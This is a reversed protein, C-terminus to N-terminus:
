LHTLSLTSVGYDETDGGTGVQWNIIQYDTIKASGRASYLHALGVGMGSTIVNHDTWHLEKEGDPYVKWIELHGTPNFKDQAM